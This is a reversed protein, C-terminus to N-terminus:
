ETRRGPGRRRRSRMSRGLRSDLGLMLLSLALLPWGRRAEATDVATPREGAYLTQDYFGVLSDLRTTTRRAIGAGARGVLSRELRKTVREAFEMPTDGAVLDIGLTTAALWRTRALLTRAQASGTMGSLRVQDVSLAVLGVLAAILLGAMVGALASGGAGPVPAAQGGDATEDPSEPQAPGAVGQARDIAPRGATPEFPIWGYSAFYIEVWTHADAATVDYRVTGDELVAAQGAAYGVAIRAPIGAARALVVMASAYYDCYGRKLDFLFYDVIDNDIPPQPVDLSYPFTRLYAEIALARDYTTPETATLDRALGIVDPPIGDPLRVYRGQVWDPVEAPAHRLEDPTTVPWASAVEYDDQNGIVGFADEGPTRWAVQYPFDLTLVSGAAFVKGAQPETFHVKQRIEVHHIPLTPRISDGAAFAQRTVRSTRWGHGTYQDYTLSRWYYAPPSVQGPLPKVEIQMVLEHSLEPGSGILVRNPLGPNELGRAPQIPRGGSEVGLSTALEQNGQSASERWSRYQDIWQEISFDPTAAGLLALLIAMPLVLRALHFALGEPVDVYASLARREIPAQAGFALSVLTGVLALMVPVVPGASYSEATMLLILCPLLAVLPREHRRSWWASWAAVAWILGGWLVAAAVPDYVPQGALASGAWEILRQALVGLALVLMRLDAALPGLDPIRTPDPWRLLSSAGFAWLVRALLRELAGVRITITLIGAALLVSSASTGRLRTGALLWGLGLGTVALLLNLGPDLGRVVAALGSALAGVTLALGLLLGVAGLNVRQFRLRSMVHPEM